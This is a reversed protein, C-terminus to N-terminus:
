EFTSPQSYLARSSASCPLNTTARTLALVSQSHNWSSIQSSAFARGRGHTWSWNTRCRIRNIPRSSLGRVALMFGLYMARVRVRCSPGISVIRPTGSPRVGCLMITVNRGCGGATSGGHAKTDGGALYGSSVPPQREGLEHDTRAGVLACTLLGCGDVLVHLAAQRVVVHTAGTKYYMGAGELDFHQVGRQALFAVTREIAAGEEADPPSHVRRFGRKTYDPSVVFAGRNTIVIGTIQFISPTAVRAVLNTWLVVDAPDVATYVEDAQRACRSARETLALRAPAPARAPTDRCVEPPTESSLAPVDDPSRATYKYSSVNERYHFVEGAKCVVRARFLYRPDFESKVFVGAEVERPLAALFASVPVSPTTEKPLEIQALDAFTTCTRPHIAIEFQTCQTTYQVLGILCLSGRYMCVRVDRLSSHRVAQGIARLKELARVSAARKGTSKGEPKLPVETLESATITQYSFVLCYAPDNFHPLGSPICVGAIPPVTKHRDHAVSGPRM